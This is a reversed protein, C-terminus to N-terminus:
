IYEERNQNFRKVHWPQEVRYLFVGSRKMKAQPWSRGSPALPRSEWGATDAPGDRCTYDTICLQRKSCVVTRGSLGSLALAQPPKPPTPRLLKNKDRPSWFWIEGGSSLLARSWSESTHPPFTSSLPHITESQIVHVVISSNLNKTHWLFVDQTEVMMTDLASACNLTYVTYEFM